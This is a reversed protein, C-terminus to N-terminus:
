RGGDQANLKNLDEDLTVLLIHDGIKETLLFEYSPMEFMLAGFAYIPIIVKDRLETNRLGNM